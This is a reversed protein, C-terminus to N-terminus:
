GNNSCNDYNSLPRRIQLQRQVGNSNEDPTSASSHTTQVPSASTESSTQVRKSMPCGM